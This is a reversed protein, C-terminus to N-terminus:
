KLSDAIKILRNSIFDIRSGGNPVACKLYSGIYSTKGILPSNIGRIDILNITEKLQEKSRKSRHAIFNRISYFVEILEGDYRSFAFKRAYKVALFKAALNRLKDPSYAFINFGKPDILSAVRDEKIYQPLGLKLFRAATPGYDKNISKKINEALEKKLKGPKLVVYKLFLDNVFCEWEVALQLMLQIALFSEIYDSPGDNQAAAIINDKTMLDRRINTKFKNVIKISGTSM